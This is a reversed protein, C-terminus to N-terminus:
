IKNLEQRMTKKHFKLENTRKRIFTNPDKKIPMAPDTLFGEQVM